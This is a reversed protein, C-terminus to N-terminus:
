CRAATRRDEEGVAVVVGEREPPSLLHFPDPLVHGHDAQRQGVGVPVHALQAVVRDPRDIGACTGRSQRSEIGGGGSQGSCPIVSEIIAVAM